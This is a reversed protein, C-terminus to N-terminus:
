QKPFAKNWVEIVKLKPTWGEPKFTEATKAEMIDQEVCWQAAKAMDADDMDVFAAENVPAPRGANNWVLLALQGRNAPIATGEPLINHLIVRAAIEYGSWVAAGGADNSLKVDVQDDSTIEVKMKGFSGEGTLTHTDPNYTLKDNNDGLIHRCNKNTVEIAEDNNMTVTIGYNTAKDNPDANEPTGPQINLYKANVTESYITGTLATQTNSSESEGVAVRYASTTDTGTFKMNGISGGTRQPSKGGAAAHWLEASRCPTKPDMTEYFSHRREKKTQIM